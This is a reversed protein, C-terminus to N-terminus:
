MYTLYNRMKIKKYCHTEIFCVSTLKSEGTKIEKERVTTTTPTFSFSYQFLLLENKVLLHMSQDWSTKHPGKTKYKTLPTTFPPAKWWRWAADLSWPFNRNWHTSKYAFKANFSWPFNRRSVEHLVCGFKCVSFTMYIKLYKLTEHISSSLYLNM